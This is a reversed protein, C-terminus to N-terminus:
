KKLLAVTMVIKETGMKGTVEFKIENRAANVHFNEDGEIEVGMDRLDQLGLQKPTEVILLEKFEKFSCNTGDAAVVNDTDKSGQIEFTATLSPDAVGNALTNMEWTGVVWDGTFNDMTLVEEKLAPAATKATPAASASAADSSKSKSCSVFAFAALVIMLVVLVNKMSKM